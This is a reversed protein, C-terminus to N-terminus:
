STLPVARCVAAAAAAAAAYTNRVVGAFHLMSNDYCGGAHLAALAQRCRLDPLNICRSLM